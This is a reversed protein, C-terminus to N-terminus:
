SIPAASPGLAIPWAALAEPRFRVADPFRVRVPVLRDLRPVSGVEIGRLATALDEGIEAPSLGARQVADGLLAFRLVPVEGEVGRYYDVLHPTDLLRREVDDALRSLLAQDQGVIRVELPRPNGALDNLVDELIQVFEVRVGPLDREVSGRVED